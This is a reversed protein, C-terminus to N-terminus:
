STPARRDAARLRAIIMILAVAAIGFADEVVRAALVPM